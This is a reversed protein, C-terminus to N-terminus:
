EHDARRNWAERLEKMGDHQGSGVYDEYGEFTVLAKCWNCFMVPMYFGDVTHYLEYLAKGGCFPCPKLEETTSM